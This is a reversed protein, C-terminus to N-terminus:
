TSPRHIFLKKKGFCDINLDGSAHRFAKSNATLTKKEKKQKIRGQSEAAESFGDM